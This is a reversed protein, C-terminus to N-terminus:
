QLSWELEIVGAARRASEQGARGGLDDLVEAGVRGYADLVEDEVERHRRDGRHDLDEVPEGRLDSRVHPRSRGSRGPASFFGGALERYSPPRIDLVKGFPAGDAKPSGMAVAMRMRIQSSMGASASSMTWSSRLAPNMGLQSRTSVSSCKKVRSSRAGSM